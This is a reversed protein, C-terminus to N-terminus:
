KASPKQTAVGIIANCNLQSAAKNELLQYAIRRM